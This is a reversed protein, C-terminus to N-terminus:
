SEGFFDSFLSYIYEEIDFVVLDEIKEGLGVYKIPLKYKHKIALVIGGKATGDLKTLVVGTVDTAEKFIEAQNIGNQGTTADIVLFTEQPPIDIVKEIVRRMKALEDMLFKKNHLRGATDILVCNYNEKKALSLGDYIVSSPDSGAEKKFVDVGARKGWVDLQDIAGARFTDGAILLVKNKEEKLIKALKGISTTKGTGNVGVFLYTNIVDKNYNIDAKVIEKELYLNFMEDVIVEQLKLPDTIKKLSQQKRLEAMFHLTTEVGIDAEILIEEIETYLDENINKSNELVRKLTGLAETSKHLGLSYKADKKKKRGLLRSFFGM